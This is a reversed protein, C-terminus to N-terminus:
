ATTRKTGPDTKVRPPLLWADLSYKGPGIFILSLFVIADETPQSGQMFRGTDVNQKVAAVVMTIFLLVCAPRFLFGTLVLLGGIAESFAAMFGWFVPAFGIGLNGMNEGLGEWKEPGGLLKPYGHLMFMIGIGIRLLLIGTERYRNLYHFTLYDM